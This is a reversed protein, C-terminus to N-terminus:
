QERSYAPPRQSNSQRVPGSMREVQVLSPVQSGYGVQSPSMLNASSLKM